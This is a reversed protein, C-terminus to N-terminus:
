MDMRFEVGYNKFGLKEYWAHVNPRSYRSTGIIKYCGLKKGEDLAKKVLMTGIGKGRREEEVFVDELLGFPEEHQDNHMLFLYVRAIEKGQEEVFFKIGSASVEKQQIKM